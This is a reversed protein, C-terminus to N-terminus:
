EEVNDKLDEGNLITAFDSLYFGLIGGIIPLVVYSVLMPMLASMLADFGTASSPFIGYVMGVAPNMIFTNSQLMFFNSNAVVAIIMAIFVGAAVTIAFAATNKKVRQARAFFFAILIAGIFEIM